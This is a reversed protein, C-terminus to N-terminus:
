RVFNSSSKILVPILRLLLGEGLVRLSMQFVLREELGFDSLELLVGGNNSNDGVSLDLLDSDDVLLSVDHFDLNVSSGDFLLNVESNSKELFENGYVSNEFIGFNDVRDSNGLSVSEFSNRRSPSCSSKWSLSVLSKSLNCADSCPMWRSNGESNSSSSLVSIVVSRLDVVLNHSNSLGSSVASGGLEIKRGLWNGRHSSKWSKSNDRLVKDHDLSSAGSNLSSNDGKSLANDRLSGSDGEFLNLELKDISIGLKSM